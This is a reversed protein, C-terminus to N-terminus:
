PKIKKNLHIQYKSKKLQTNLQKVDVKIFKKFKENVNELRKNFIAYVERQQDTPKFDVGNAGIDSALASLRGYLKMPARFADERAGTLQIDYLTGAINQAMERLETARQIDNKRKLSPIVENLESRITEIDNILTVAYNMADRLELSFAVQEQISQLTGESSPDKLVKLERVYEDKGIILKVTYTDPVVRPGFQGRWLDLDWTVLPRWGEGNLQVWPRGPPTSKLKPKYTPEYRLNWVTRHIGKDNEGKLTRIIENNADLIQIEVKQDTSDKLYYNIDAGYTPNQGANNSPGDTKISEREQFRYAQRLSFLHAKKDKADLDFERLPSINDLIYYGRGYTGVVLDDFREQIELWYVPAPPLNNRLRMWHEGDDQSIYLGNDVGAYLMGERKPDEKIVHVFSHVSKPINGSILKWHQGYDETKYIYPNFDGMQHLDVSLYVAGKKYRSTEINSITGWKPLNPINQTVNTWNEGGNRTLQVQGDNTGVWILGAELGSEEIAFLTSGDFTMLNDKAIGGSSQQHSKDNLTLDPSIVQWSQGNDDSKHVYQSGVYVRHKVHPSFALPFNWHWRYKMESPAWGYGSEPWVRVDQSHGTKANYRQLGGDYCGSWVIDNDFPDPQAFGSECGGVGKWLGIPIYGQLSNSPGKYSYGDQRNGYVNYPIQDDVAVHYMQAIPLVVRQFTKGHNLSISAGGDHAVLIRDANTPDIWIDHNDGGAKYGGKLTEGGDKSTSFKVNAFYIENPDKTSVAMRTYYPARENIDHNRTQLTWTDGFDISKYLAPSDIEFLAYVVNPDSHSIAVGTKGVPNNRGGPLGKESLAQWTDGGDLSRYIGGGPGGSNLGWTNILISWMGVLLRDPNKPDLAIDAAGTNEDIFLIRKWNKGGDITKYVGREQQPGYTHGLAAAYVIDPNTPHVVVRGIRGTKELGMNKWTKGADESKYIGDGMAHAPRIIFTEGTGVWIVNPNTPAIALSGVSSVDQDDFISKWTVGGDSTKWLGGSAAGIYNIMTNGPVGAIAITRNGEPGIFRFKLNKFTESETQANCIFTLLFVLLLINPRPNMPLAYNFLDGCSFFGWRPQFYLSM